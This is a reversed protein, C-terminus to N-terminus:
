KTGLFCLSIFVRVGPQWGLAGFVVMNVFKQRGLLSILTPDEVVHLRHKLAEPVLQATTWPVQKKVGSTEMGVTFFVPFCSSLNGSHLFGFILLSIAQSFFGLFWFLSQRLTFFTPFCFLSQLGSPLGSQPLGSHLGSSHGQASKSTGFGRHGSDGSAEGECRSASEIARVGASSGRGECSEAKIFLVFGASVKCACIDGLSGRLGIRCSETSVGLVQFIAYGEIESGAVQM